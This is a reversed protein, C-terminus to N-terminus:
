EFIAAAQLAAAFVTWGDAPVPRSTNIYVNEYGELWAAMAEIYAPVTVNEWRAPAGTEWEALLRHLVRSSMMSTWPWLSVSGSGCPTRFTRKQRSCRRIAERCM